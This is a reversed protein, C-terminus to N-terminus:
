KPLQPFQADNFGFNLGKPTCDPQLQYQPRMSASDNHEAVDKTMETAQKRPIDFGKTMITTMAQYSFCETDSENVVGESHGAEHSLRRMANSASANSVGPASGMLDQYEKQTLGLDSLNVGLDEATPVAEKYHFPDDAFDVIYDCDSQRLTILRVVSDGSSMAAVDTERSMNSQHEYSTTCNVWYRHGFTKELAQEIRREDADVAGAAHQVINEPALAAGVPYMMEVLGLAISGGAALALASNRLKRNRTNDPLLPQQDASLIAEHSMQKM